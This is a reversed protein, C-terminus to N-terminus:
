SSSTSATFPSSATNLYYSHTTGTALALVNNWNAAGWATVNDLLENALEAKTQAQSTENGIQLSPAIITAAGVVFIVALSIAVLVEVLSQGSRHRQCLLKM